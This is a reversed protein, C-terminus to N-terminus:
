NEENKMLVCNIEVPEYMHKLFMGYINKNILKLYKGLKLIFFKYGKIPIKYKLLQTIESYGAYSFELLTLRFVKTFLLELSYRDFNRLHVYNYPYNEKLYGSLDEKNPVRIILIGGM